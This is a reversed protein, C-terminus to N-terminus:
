NDSDADSVQFHVHKSNLAKHVIDQNEITTTPFDPTATTMDIHTIRNTTERQDKVQDETTTTTMVINTLTMLEPTEITSISTESAIFTNKSQITIKLDEVNCTIYGGNIFANQTQGDSHPDHENANHKKYVIVIVVLFVCSSCIGAVTGEQNGLASIHTKSTIDGSCPVQEKEQNEITATPCNPTVTKIDIPTVRKTTERQTTVQNETTTTIIGINTVIDSTLIPTTPTAPEAPINCLTVIALLIQESIRLGSGNSRFEGVNMFPPPCPVFRLFVNTVNELSNCTNNNQLFTESLPTPLTCTLGPSYPTTM